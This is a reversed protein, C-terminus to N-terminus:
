NGAVLYKYVNSLHKEKESNRLKREEVSFLRLESFKEMNSHHKSGKIMKSNM